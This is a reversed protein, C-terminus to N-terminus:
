GAVGTFLNDIILQEKARRLKRGSAVSIGVPSNRATRPVGNSKVFGAAIPARMSAPRRAVPLEPFAVVVVPHQFASFRGYLEGSLNQSGVLPGTRSTM